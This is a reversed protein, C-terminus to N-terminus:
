RIAPLLYKKNKLIEIQSGLTTARANEEEPTLYREQMPTAIAPAPVPAPTQAPTSFYNMIRQGISPAPPQQQQQQVEQTDSPYKNYLSQLQAQRILNNQQDFSNATPVAAPMALDERKKKEM